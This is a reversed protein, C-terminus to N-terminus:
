VNSKKKLLYSSVAKVINHYGTCRCLNGDLFERIQTETKINTNKELEITSFLIGPTCFGCQLGHEEKFSEQVPHMNGSTKLSEITKVDKNHCQAAFISCSKVCKNEVFVICAGCQSTDCGVHTGTLKLKNRLFDALLLRPEIKKSYKIDNVSINIKLNSYM